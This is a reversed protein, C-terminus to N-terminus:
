FSFHPYLPPLFPSLFYLCEFVELAEQHHKSFQSSSPSALCGPLFFFFFFFFYILLFIFLFILFHYLSFLHKRVLSSILMGHNACGPQCINERDGHRVVVVVVFFFSLARRHRRNRSFPFLQTHFFSTIQLFKRLLYPTPSTQIFYNPLSCFNRGQYLKQTMKNM